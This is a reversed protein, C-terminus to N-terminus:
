NKGFSKARHFLITMFGAFQWMHPLESFHANKETQNQKRRCSLVVEFGKLLYVNKKEAHMKLNNDLNLSPIEM